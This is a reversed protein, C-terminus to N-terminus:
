RLLDHCIKSKFFQLYLKLLAYNSSVQLATVDDTNRRDVNAKAELFEKVLKVKGSACNDFLVKMEDTAVNNNM